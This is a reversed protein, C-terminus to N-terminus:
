MWNIYFIYNSISRNRSFYISTFIIYFSNINSCFIFIFFLFYAVVKAWTKDLFRKM